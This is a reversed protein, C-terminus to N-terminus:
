RAEENMMFHTKFIPPRRESKKKEKRKKEKAHPIQKLIYQKYIGKSM